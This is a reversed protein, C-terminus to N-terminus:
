RSTILSRCYVVRASLTARREAWVEMYWIPSTFNPSFVLWFLHLPSGLETGLAVFGGLLLSVALTLLVRQQGIIEERHALVGHGLMISVGTSMLALFIYTVLPLTWIMGNNTAFSGGVLLEGIAFYAGFLLGIGTVAWAPTFFNRAQM